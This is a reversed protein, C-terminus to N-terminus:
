RSGPGASGRLGPERQSVSMRQPLRQMRERELVLRVIREREPDEGIARWAADIHRPLAAAFSLPELSESRSPAAPPTTGHVTWSREITAGALPRDTLLIRGDETRQQVIVPGGATPQSASAPGALMAAACLALIFPPHM